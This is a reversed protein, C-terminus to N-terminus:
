LLFFSCQQSILLQSRYITIPRNVKVSDIERIACSCATGNFFSFVAAAAGAHPDLKRIIEVSVQVVPIYAPKIEEDGIVGTDLYLGCLELILHFVFRDSVSEQNTM